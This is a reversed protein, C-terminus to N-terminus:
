RLMPPLVAGVAKDFLSETNERVIVRDAPLIAYDTELSV